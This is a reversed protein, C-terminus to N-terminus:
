LMVTNVRNAIAMFSLVDNSSKNVPAALRCYSVRPPTERRGFHGARREFLRGVVILPLLTSPKRHRAGYPAPAAVV